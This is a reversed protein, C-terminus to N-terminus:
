IKIQLIYKELRDLEINFFMKSNIFYFFAYLKNEKRGLFAYCNPNLIEEERILGKKLKFLNENECMYIIEEETFANSLNCNKKIDKASLSIIQEKNRIKM